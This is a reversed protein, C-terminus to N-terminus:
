LCTSPFIFPPLYVYLLCLCAPSLSLSLLCALLYTNTSLYLSTYSPFIYLSSQVSPTFNTYLHFSLSSLSSSVVYIFFFLLILHLQHFPYFFTLPVNSPHFICIHLYLPYPLRSSPWLFSPLPSLSWLYSVLTTSLHLLSPLHALIPIHCSSQLFCPAHMSLWLPLSSFCSHVTSTSLFNSLPSHSYQLLISSLFLPPLLTHSPVPDSSYLIFPIYLFIHM